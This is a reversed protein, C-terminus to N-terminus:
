FCRDATDITTVRLQSIVNRACSTQDDGRTTISSGKEILSDPSTEYRMKKEQTVGLHIFGSLYQWLFSVRARPGKRRIRTSYM